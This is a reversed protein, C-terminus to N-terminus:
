TVETKKKAYSELFETINFSYDYEYITHNTHFGFHYGTMNKPKEIKLKHILKTNIEYIQNKFDNNYRQIAENGTEEVQRDLEFVKSYNECVYFEDPYGIQATRVKTMLYTKNDSYRQFVDAFEECSFHYYFIISINYFYM